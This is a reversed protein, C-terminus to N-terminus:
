NVEQGDAIRESLRAAFEGLVRRGVDEMVGQGFQAQPGTIQLDTGAEVRTGAGEPVLRNTVTARATGQGKVTNAELFMVATRTAEDVETLRATGRYDVVMPGIRVRMSGTYTGADDATGIKAGPLCSAVGELDLLHRWVQDVEADIVFSNALNM